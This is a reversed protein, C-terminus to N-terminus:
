YRHILLMEFLHIWTKRLMMIGIWISMRPLGSVTQIRNDWPIGRYSSPIPIQGIFIMEKRAIHDMKKNRLM